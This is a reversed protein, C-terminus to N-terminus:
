ATGHPVPSIAPRPEGFLVEVDVPPMARGLLFGQPPESWDIEAVSNAPLDLSDGSRTYRM